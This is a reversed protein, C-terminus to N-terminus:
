TGPPPPPPTIPNGSKCMQNSQATNRADCDVQAKAEAVTQSTGSTYTIAEHLITTTTYPSLTKIMPCQPQPNDNYAWGTRDYAVANFNPM